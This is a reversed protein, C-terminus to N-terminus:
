RVSFSIELCNTMFLFLREDFQTCMKQKIITKRSGCELNVTEKMFLLLLLFFIRLYIVSAAM